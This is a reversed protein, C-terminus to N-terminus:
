CKIDEHVSAQSHTLDLTGCDSSGSTLGNAESFHATMKYSIGKQLSISYTDNDYITASSTMQPNVANSFDIREARTAIGHLTVVGSVMAYTPPFIAGWAVFFAIVGAILM